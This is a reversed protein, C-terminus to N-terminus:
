LLHEFTRAKKCARLRIRWKDNAEDVVSQLTSAWTDTLRQKFDNSACVSTMCGVGIWYDVPKLEPSNSPWLDPAIFKPASDQQFVYTNGAIRRTVPLM